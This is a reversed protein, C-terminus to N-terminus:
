ILPPIALLVALVLMIRGRLLGGRQETMTAM